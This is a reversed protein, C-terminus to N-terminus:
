KVTEWDDGSAPKTKPAAPPKGTTTATPKAPQAAKVPPPPPPPPAAAATESPAPPEPPPPLASATATPPAPSRKLEGRLADEFYTIESALKSHVKNDRVLFGSPTLLVRGSADVQATIFSVRDSRKEDVHARLKVSHEADRQELVNYGRESAVKLVAAYATAPDVRSETAHETLPAWHACAVPGVLLTVLCVIVLTLRM